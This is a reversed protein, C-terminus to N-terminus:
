VFDMVGGKIRNKLDPNRKLAGDDIVAVTVQKAVPVKTWATVVSLSRLYYQKYSYPDESASLGKLADDKALPGYYAMQARAKEIDSPAYANDFAKSFSDFAEKNKNLKGYTEGMNFYLTFNVGSQDCFFLTANRYSDIAKLYEGNLVLADGETTFKSTLECNSEASTTYAPFIVSLLFLFLAYKKM